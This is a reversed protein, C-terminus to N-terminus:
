AAGGEAKTLRANIERLAKSAEQAFGALREITRDDGALLNVAIRGDPYCIFTVTATPADNDTKRPTKKMTEQRRKQNMTALTRGKRATLSPLHTFIQYHGGGKKFPPDCM